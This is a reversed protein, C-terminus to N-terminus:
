KKEKSTGQQNQRNRCVCWNDVTIAAICPFFTLKPQSFFRKPSSRCRKWFMHAVKNALVCVHVELPSRRALSVSLSAINIRHTLSRHDDIKGLSKGAIDGTGM